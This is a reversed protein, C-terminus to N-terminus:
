PFTKKGTQRNRQESLCQTTVGMENAVTSAEALVADWQNRLAQIEEQQTKIHAAEMDLSINGSQLTLSRNEIRQSVKVWFTLPFVTRFSM